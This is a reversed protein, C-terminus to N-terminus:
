LLCSVDHKLIPKIMKNVNGVICPLQKWAARRLCEPNQPIPLSKYLYYEAQEVEERSFINDIFRSLTLSSVPLKRNYTRDMIAALEALSHKDKQREEWKSSDVYAASLLCRKGTAVRSARAGARMWLLALRLVPAAM